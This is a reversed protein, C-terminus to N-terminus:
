DLTSVTVNMGYRVSEDPTFRIFVTFATDESGADSIASIRSVTGTLTEGSDANWDFALAVTDGIRIAALDTESVAAEIQMADRPWLVAAVANEEIASGQVANVTAVVGGMDTTIRKDTGSGDLTEMLLDGRKIVDGPKVHIASVRGTASVAIPASRAVDGKGTRETDPYSESRYINVTEGILFAGENVQVTYSTGDVSTIVGAGTHDENVRGRLYVTEGVYVLKSEMSDYAKETSASVTYPSAGEMYIPAGYRAATTDALDGAEAFVATVTGDEEAYIKTTRLSAIADGAQIETGECVFVSEVTGSSAAYVEHTYSATVSGELTVSEALASASMLVLALPILFIRQLRGKM